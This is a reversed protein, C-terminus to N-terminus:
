LVSILGEAVLFCHFFVELNTKLSDNIVSFPLFIFSKIQSNVRFFIKHLHLALGFVKWPNKKM